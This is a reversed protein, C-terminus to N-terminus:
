IFGIGLVSLPVWSPDNQATAWMISIRSDESVVVAAAPAFRSCFEVASRHRGGGLESSPLKDINGAESWCNVERPSDPVDIFAGFGLIRLESDLLVAGDVAALHGVSALYRERPQLEEPLPREDRLIPHGIQIGDLARGERLIWVAGGHGDNAIARITSALFVPAFSGLGQRVIDLARHVEPLRSESHRSLRGARLTMLRTFRWSIDLTGVSSSATAFEPPDAGVGRFAQIGTIEPKGSDCDWTLYGIRGQVPTLKRLSGRNLLAPKELRHVLGKVTEQRPSYLLRPRCPRSEETLLSAWFVEEFLSAIAERGPLPIDATGRVFKEEPTLNPADSFVMRLTFRRVEELFTDALTHSDIM